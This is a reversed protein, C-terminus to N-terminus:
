IPKVESLVGVKQLDKVMRYFESIKLVDYIERNDYDKDQPCFIQAGPIAYLFPSLHRRAPPSVFIKPAKSILIVMEHFM